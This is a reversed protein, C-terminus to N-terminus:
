RQERSVVNRSSKEEPFSGGEDEGEEEDDEGELSENVEDL